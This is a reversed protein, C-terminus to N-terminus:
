MRFSSQLRAVPIPLGGPPLPLCSGQTWRGRASSKAEFTVPVRERMARILPERFPAAGNPFIDWVVKGLLTKAPFDMLREAETNLYVFRFQNDYVVM